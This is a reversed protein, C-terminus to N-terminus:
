ASPTGEVLQASGVNVRAYDLFELGYRTASYGTRNAQQDTLTASFTGSKFSAPGSAGFGSMAINHATLAMLAVDHSSWNGVIVEADNLWYVLVEDSVDALTPYRLRFTDVIPSDADYVTM